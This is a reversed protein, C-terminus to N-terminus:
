AQAKHRNLFHVNLLQTAYDAAIGGYPVSRALVSGRGLPYWPPPALNQPAIRALKPPLQSCAEVQLELNFTIARFKERSGSCKTAVRKTQRMESLYVNNFWDVALRLANSDLRANARISRIWLGADSQVILWKREQSLYRGARSTSESRRGM